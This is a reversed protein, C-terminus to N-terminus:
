QWCIRPRLPPPKESEEESYNDEEYGDTEEEDTGTEEDVFCEEGDTGTDEGEALKEDEDNGGEKQYFASEEQVNLSPQVRRSARAALIRRFGLERARATRDLAREVNAMLRNIEMNNAAMDLRIKLLELLQFQGSREPVEQDEFAQPQSSVSGSEVDHGPVRPERNSEYEGVRAQSSVSANSESGTIPRKFTEGPFTEESSHGSTSPPQVVIIRANSDGPDMEPTIPKQLIPIAHGVVTLDFSSSIGDSLCESKANANSISGVSTISLKETLVSPAGNKRSAKTKCSHNNRKGKKKSKKGREQTLSNEQELSCDNDKAKTCSSCWSGMKCSRRLKCSQLASFAIFNSQIVFLTVNVRFNSCKFARASM